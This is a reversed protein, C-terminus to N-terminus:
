EHEVELGFNEKEKNTMKEYCLGWLDGDQHLYYIDGTKKDLYRANALIWEWDEWYFESEPDTAMVWHQTNLRTLGWAACHEWAIQNQGDTLFDRPIYIGRADSLILNVADMM